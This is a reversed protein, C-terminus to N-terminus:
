FASSVSRFEDGDPIKVAEWKTPKIAGDPAWQQKAPRHCIRFQFLEQDIKRDSNGEDLSGLHVSFHYIERFKKNNKIWTCLYNKIM